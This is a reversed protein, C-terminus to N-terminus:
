GYVFVDSTAHAATVAPTGSAAVTALPVAIGAAVTGAIGLTVLPTIIARKIGM